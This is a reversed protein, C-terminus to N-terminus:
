PTASSMAAHTMGSVASQAQRLLYADEKEKPPMSEAMRIAHLAKEQEGMAAYTRALAAQHMLRSPASQCARELYLAYDALSAEPFRGYILEVLKKLFPNIRAMEYNWIGLVHLAVDQKPDLEVAKTAESAVLKSYEVRKKPGELLLSRGYCIALSAHALASRPNAAVARTADALALDDLRREEGRNGADRSDAALQSYQKARLCLIEPNEPDQGGAELLLCLAERNRLERDAQRARDLLV